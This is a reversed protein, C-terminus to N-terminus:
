RWRWTKRDRECPVHGGESGGGGKRRALRVTVSAHCVGVRAVEVKADQM